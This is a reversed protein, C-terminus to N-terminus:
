ARDKRDHAFPKIKFTMRIILHSAKLLLQNIQDLYFHGLRKCTLGRIFKLVLNQTESHETYILARQRSANM